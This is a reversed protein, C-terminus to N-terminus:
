PREQEDQKRRDSDDPSIVVGVFQDRALDSTHYTGDPHKPSRHRCILTLREPSEENTWEVQLHYIFPEGPQSPSLGQTWSRTSTEDPVWQHELAWEDYFAVVDQSPYPLDPLLYSLLGWHADPVDRVKLDQAGPYIPVQRGVLSASQVSGTSPAGEVPHNGLDLVELATLLFADAEDPVPERAYITVKIQLWRVRQHLPGIRLTQVMSYTRAGEVEEGDADLRTYTCPVNYQVLRNDTAATDFTVDSPIPKGDRRRLEVSLTATRPTVRALRLAVLKVEYADSLVVKPGWNPSELRETGEGQLSAPSTVGPAVREQALIPGQADSDRRQCAALATLAVALCTGCAVRLCWHRYRM